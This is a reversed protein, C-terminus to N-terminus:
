SKRAYLYRDLFDFLRGFFAYALYRFRFDVPVFPMTLFMKLADFGSCGDLISSAYVGAATGRLTLQQVEVERGLLRADEILFANEVVMQRTARLLRLRKSPRVLDTKLQNTMSNGGRRHFVLPEQVLMAGGMLLSRAVLPQDEVALDPSLSQLGLLRPTAAFTVGLFYPRKKFWSQITWDQLRSTKKVGLVQGDFSMDYADSSILDVKREVLEWADVVKSMRDPRSLDDSGALFILEGSCLMAGASVNAAPGINRDNRHLLIKIPGRYQAVFNQLLDWTQDTSCKDSVVIEYHPYDQELLNALSEIVFREDNFVFLVFSCLPRSM